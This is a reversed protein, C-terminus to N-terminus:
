CRVDFMMKAAGFTKIKWEGESERGGVFKGFVQFFSVAEIIFANM